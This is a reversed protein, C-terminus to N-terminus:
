GRPSPRTTWRPRASRGSRGRVPGAPQSRTGSRGVGAGRRCRPCRDPPAAPRGVPPAGAGPAGGCRRAAVVRGGPRRSVGSRRSGRRVVPLSWHDPARALPAAPVRSGHPPDPVDGDGDHPPPRTVPVAWYPRLRWRPGHGPRPRPREAPPHRPGPRAAAWRFRGPRLCGLCPSGHSVGYRGGAPGLQWGHVAGDDADGRGAQDDGGLVALQGPPPDVPDVAGPPPQQGAAYEPDAAPVRDGDLPAAEAGVSGGEGRGHTGPRLRAGVGVDTHLPDPVRVAGLPDGHAAERGPRHAQGHLHREAGVQGLQGRHGGAPGPRFQRGRHM